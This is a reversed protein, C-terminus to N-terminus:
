GRREPIPPSTRKGRRDGRSPDRRDRVISELEEQPISYFHDESPFSGSRVDEAYSRIADTIAVGIEAYRKVFKPRIDGVFTGLMDHVIVLQGDLLRGAGIGYAPIELADRIQGAVENPVAEVLISFCGAAQLALADGLLDRYSDVNRGQVRYGGLQSMSQPTLGIHGMVPIGADVMAKVREAVRRGGECKVADCGAEAMFRGANGIADENSRQYSMFPMDGVVFACKVARTVASAMMLMDSMTVPLTSPYGLMTMGGSDGVLIMDVGAQEAFYATPFDYATLFVVRDGRRKMRRLTHTTIKTRKGHGAM